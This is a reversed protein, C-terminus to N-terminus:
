RNKYLNMVRDISKGELRIGIGLLWLSMTIKRGIVFSLLSLSVM